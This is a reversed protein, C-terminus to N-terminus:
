SCIRIHKRREDASRVSCTVQHDDQQIIALKKKRKKRENSRNRCYHTRVKSSAEYKRGQLM